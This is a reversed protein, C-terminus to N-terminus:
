GSGWGIARGIASSSTEQVGSADGGGGSTSAGVTEDATLVAARLRQFFRLREGVRVMGLESMLIDAAMTKSAGDSATWLTYLELLAAGDISAREAAAGISPACGPGGAEASSLMWQTAAAVDWGGVVSGRGPHRSFSSTGAAAPLSAGPAIPSTKLIPSAPRYNVRMMEAGDESLPSSPLGSSGTPSPSRQMMRAVEVEGLELPNVQSSGSGSTSPAAKAAAEAASQEDDSLQSVMSLFTTTFQAVAASSLALAPLGLGAIGASDTGSLGGRVIANATAKRIAEQSDRASSKKATMVVLGSCPGDGGGSGGARAFCHVGKVREDGVGAEPQLQRAIDLTTTGLELETASGDVAQTVVLSHLKCSPDHSSGVLVAGAAVDSALLDPIYSGLGPLAISSGVLVTMAEEDDILSLVRVTSSLTTSGGSSFGGAAGGAGDRNLLATFSQTAGSVDQNGLMLFSPIVPGEEEEGDGGLQSAGGTTAGGSPGLKGVLDLPGEDVEAILGATAMPREMMLMSSLGSSGLGSSASPSKAVSIQAPEAIVVAADCAVVVRAMATTDDTAPLVQLGRLEGCGVAGLEGGGDEGVMERRDVSVRQPQVGAPTNANGPKFLEGVHGGDWMFFSVDRRSLGVLVYEVHAASLPKGRTDTKVVQCECWRSGACPPLEIASADALAQAGGGADGVRVVWIASPCCVALGTAMWSLSKIAEPGTYRAFTTARLPAKDRGGSICWVHVVHETTAGKDKGGSTWAAALMSSSDDSNNVHWAVAALTATSPVKPPVLPVGASSLKGEGDVACVLLSPSGTSSPAPQPLAALGLQESVCGALQNRGLTSLTMTGGPLRSRPQWTVDRRWQPVPSRSPALKEARGTRAVGAELQALSPRMMPQETTDDPDDDVLAGSDAFMTAFKAQVAKFADDDMSTASSLTDATPPLDLFQSVALSFRGINRRSNVKM